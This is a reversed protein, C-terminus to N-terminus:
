NKDKFYNKIIKITDLIRKHHDSFNKRGSVIKPNKQILEKIHPPINNKKNL